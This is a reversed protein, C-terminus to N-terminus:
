AHINADFIVTVTGKYTDPAKELLTKISQEGSVEFDIHGPYNQAPSNTHFINHPLDKKTRLPQRTVSKQSSDDEKVVINSALTLFARVPVTRKTDESTLACETDSFLTGCQLYVTFEGSSSLRFKSRGTLKTPKSGGSLYRDWGRQSGDQPVLIVKEAGFEPTIKLDHAVKLIFKLSVNPDGQWRFNNGFDIDFNESNGITFTLLDVNEYTGSAMSLPDPLSLNYAFSIDQIKAPNPSETANTFDLNLSTTGALLRPRNVTSIKYCIGDDAIGWMFYVPAYTGAVTRGIGETKCPLISNEPDGNIWQKWWSAANKSKSQYYLRFFRELYKASMKTITFGVKTSKNSTDGTAMLEITKGKNNKTAPWKFYLSDRPNVTFTENCKGAYKGEPDRAPKECVGPIDASQISEGVLSISFLNQRKCKAIFDNFDTACIGSSVTKNQFGDGRNLLSPRFEAEIEIIQARSESVLGGLLLIVAM